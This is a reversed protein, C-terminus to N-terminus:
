TKQIWQMLTKSLSKSPFPVIAEKIYAMMLLSLAKKQEIGRSQLYFKEDKSLHGTTAGHRAKVDGCDIALEPQNQSKAKPSLLLSKIDQSCNTGNSTSSVHTKGHFFSKAHDNLVGRFLQQSFGQKQDHHIIYKHDQLAQSKLLSLSLLASHAKQGKHYIHVRDRSFGRGLGLSLRDIKSEKQMTCATQHTHFCLPGEQNVLVHKFCSNQSMKIDLTSNLVTNHKLNKSEVLTLNAGQELFIFNKFNTFVNKSSDPFLFQIHLPKTEQYNKSVFLCFGKSAFAGALHWFFDGTKPKAQETTQAQETIQTQEKIWTYAPFNKTIDQLACLKLGKPLNKLSMNGEQFRIVHSAKLYFDKNNTNKQGEPMPHLPHKNVMKHKPQSLTHSPANPELCLWNKFALDKPHQTNTSLFPKLASFHKKQMQQIFPTTAKKQQEFNKSLFTLWKQKQMSQQNM